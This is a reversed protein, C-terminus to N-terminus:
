AVWRWQLDNEEELEVNAGFHPASQRNNATRPAREGDCNKMKRDGDIADLVASRAM